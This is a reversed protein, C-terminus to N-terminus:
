LGAVELMDKRSRGSITKCPYSCACLWKWSNQSTKLHESYNEDVILTSVVGKGKRLWPVRLIKTRM